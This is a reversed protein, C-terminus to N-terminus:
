DRIEVAQEAMRIVLTDNLVSADEVGPAVFREHGDLDPL